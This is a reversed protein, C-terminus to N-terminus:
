YPISIIGLVHLLVAFFCGAFLAIVWNLIVARDALFFVFPLYAFPWLYGTNEWGGTAFLSVVVVTGTTLIIATARKFNKTQILILYNAIIVLLALLHIVALFIHQVIYFFVIGSFGCYLTAILTYANVIARGPQLVTKKQQLLGAADTLGIKSKIRNVSM